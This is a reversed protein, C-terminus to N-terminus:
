SASWASKVDDAVLTAQAYGARASDARRAPDLV